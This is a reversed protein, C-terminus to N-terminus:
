KRVDVQHVGFGFMRPHPEVQDVIYGYILSLSEARVITYPIHNAKSEGRVYSTKNPSCFNQREGRSESWGLGV